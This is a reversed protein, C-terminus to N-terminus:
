VDEVQWDHGDLVPSNFELLSCLDASSLSPFGPVGLSLRTAKSNRDLDSFVGSTSQPPTGIVGSDITSATTNSNMDVDDCDSFRKRAAQSGDGSIDSTEPLSSCRVALSALGDHAELSFFFNETDGSYFQKHQDSLRRSGTPEGAFRDKPVMERKKTSSNTISRLPNRELSDISKTSYDEGLIPVRFGGEAPQPRLHPIDLLFSHMAQGAIFSTCAYAPFFVVKAHISDLLDDICMSSDSPDDLDGFVEEMTLPKLNHREVVGLSSPGPLEHDHLSRIEYFLVGSLGAHDLRTFRKWTRSRQSGPFASVPVGGASSCEATGALDSFVSTCLAHRWIDGPIHRFKSRSNSTAFKESLPHPAPRLIDYQKSSWTGPVYSYLSMLFYLSYVLVSGAPTSQPITHLLPTAIGRDRLFKFFTPSAPGAPM